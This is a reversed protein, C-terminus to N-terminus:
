TESQEVTSTSPVTTVETQMIDKVYVQM